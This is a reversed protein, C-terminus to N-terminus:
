RLPIVGAAGLAGVTILIVGLVVYFIRAGTRSFLTVIRQAKRNNMFWDWDFIGGSLSLIGIAFFLYVVPQM